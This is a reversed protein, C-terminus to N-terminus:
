RRIRRQSRSFRTRAPDTIAIAGTDFAQVGLITAGGGLAPPEGAFVVFALRYESRFVGNQCVLDVSVTLSQLAVRNSLYHTDVVVVIKRVIVVWAGFVFAFVAFIGM